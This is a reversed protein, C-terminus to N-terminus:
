RMAREDREIDIERYAVGRADLWKKARYCDGCWTTTYILLPETAMEAGPTDETMGPGVHPAPGVNGARLVARRPGGRLADPPHTDGPTETIPTGSPRSCSASGLAARRGRLSASSLRVMRSRADSWCHVTAARSRPSRSSRSRRAAWAIVWPRSPGM